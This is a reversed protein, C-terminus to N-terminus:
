QESATTFMRHRLVISNKHWNDFYIKKKKAEFDPAFIYIKISHDIHLSKKEKKFSSHRIIYIVKFTATSTM